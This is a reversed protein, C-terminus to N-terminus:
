HPPLLCQVADRVADAVAKAVAYDDAAKDGLAVVIDSTRVMHETGPTVVRCWFDVAPNALVMTLFTGPLDGLPARDLHNFGFVGTVRAGGFESVGVEFSGGAGEAAARFLSLGLGTRKGAKTTYFPDLVTDPDGPLGPGDDAVTIVLRDAAPDVEVAVCVVAAEVRVSNEMLDLIHLALERM